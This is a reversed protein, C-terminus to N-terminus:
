LHCSPCLLRGCYPNSSLNSILLEKLKFNFEKKDRIAKLEFPHFDNWIKPLIYFPFNEFSTLRSMPVYFDDVNRLNHITSNLLKESNTLWCNEFIKPLFGNKYQQFFQLRFYKILSPLPLINTQKFLPESHSNYKAGSIIRVANKQKIAIKNLTSQSSTSWILNAYVLHCHILSYYISKLATAPLINKSNRLFYMAKSIKTSLYNVHFKFDLQPDVYVGLFKIAPTDSSTLIREIPTAFRPDTTFSNSNCIFIQNSTAKAQNSNTFLIFKTKNPHLSLKHARFFSNVKHFEENAFKFLENLDPGSAFLKTDDAFLSTLFKSCLPLDNIYILFLLPGLISGQPVGVSISLILSNINDISVYQKRNTLYDQFWLLETGRVGINYM